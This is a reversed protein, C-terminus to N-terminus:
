RTFFTTIKKNNKGNYIGRKNELIAEYIDHSRRAICDWSYQKALKEANFKYVYLKERNNIMSIIANEIESVNNGCTWGAEYEEVKDAMNTGKTVLCPIGYALAEVLGMPLGEFRSSMMFLDTELLVKKKEENLVADKISVIDQINNDYIMQNLKQRAGDINPGYISLKFNNVRLIDKKNAVAELLMDLGKQYIDVRGIYTAKIGDSSLSKEYKLPLHIGNPIVYCKKKWRNISEKKEQETLYQIAISKKIMQNFFVFNGIIKKIKKNKQAQETLTSRPVIIYPIHYKHLDYIIKNFPYCYVEEVIAVDPKNFPNPLDILRGTPYDKLCKCDLGDKKWEERCVENINYWFVNDVKSQARVQEPVSNNPGAWLNGSLKSIFLINKKCM